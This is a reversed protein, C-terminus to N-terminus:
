RQAREIAQLVVDLDFETIGQAIVVHGRVTIKTGMSLEDTLTRSRMSGQKERGRADTGCGPKSHQKVLHTKSWM